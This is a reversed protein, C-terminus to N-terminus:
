RRGSPRLEDRGARGTRVALPYAPFVDPEAGCRVLGLGHPQRLWLLEVPLQPTSGSTRAFIYEIGTGDTGDGGPDGDDGDSGDTGAVGDVGQSGDLGYRGVIRPTSWNAGVAQGLTTGGPVRRFCRWLYPNIESISPAADDWTLGDATGPTDFGWSNLPRQRNPISLAPTVTFVYEYGLGDAGEEGDEGNAGAVGDAGNM